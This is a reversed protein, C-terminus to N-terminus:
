KNRFIWKLKSLLSAIAIKVVLPSVVDHRGVVQRVIPPSLCRPKSNCPGEYDVM